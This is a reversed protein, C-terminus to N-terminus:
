HVTSDLCDSKLFRRFVYAMHHFTQDTNFSFSVNKIIKAIDMGKQSTGAFFTWRNEGVNRCSNGFNIPIQIMEHIQGSKQIKLLQKSYKKVNSKAQIEKAAPYDVKIAVASYKQRCLACSM